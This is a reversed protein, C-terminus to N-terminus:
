AGAQQELLETFDFHWYGSDPANTWHGDDHEHEFAVWFQRATNAYVVSMVDWDNFELKEANHAVTAAINLAEEPGLKRPAGAEIVKQGRLPFVYESGTEYARLMDRMPMDCETYTSGSGDRGCPNGTNGPLAPGDDAIQLARVAPDYAIDGRCLAERLPFGYPHEVGDASTWTAAAEKADDEHFVAMADYNTEFAAARPRFDPTGFRDADGDAILYNYGLTRPTETVIAVGQELTASEELVRRAMLTWPCGDLSESTTFAGVESISIGRENMGALAGLVGAYGMTVFPQYGEPRCVTIMRHRHMGSQSIWDLNRLAYLQGEVTRSGWAAFMTCSTSVDPMTALLEEPPIGLIEALFAGRQYCDLNTSTQVRRVMDATLPVGAARAGAAVADIETVHRPAVHPGLREWCADLFRYVLAEPLGEAAFIRTLLGHIAAIEEGLLAGYQRGMAEPEGSVHVMPLSALAGSHRLLYGADHRATIVSQM